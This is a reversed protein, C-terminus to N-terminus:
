RPTSAALQVVYDRTVYGSSMTVFLLAPDDADANVAQILRNVSEPSEVDSLRLEIAYISRQRVAFPLQRREAYEDRFIRKTSAWVGSPKWNPLSCLVRAVSEVIPVDEFSGFSLRLQGASSRDAFTLLEIPASGSHIFVGDITRTQASATLAWGASLVGILLARIM